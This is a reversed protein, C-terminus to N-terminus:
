AYTKKLYEVLKHKLLKSKRFTIVQDMIEPPVWVEKKGEREAEGRTVQPAELELSGTWVFLPNEADENEKLRTKYDRWLVHLENKTMPLEEIGKNEEDTLTIRAGVEEIPIKKKTPKTAQIIFQGGFGGYFHPVVEYDIGEEKLRKHLKKKDLVVIIGDKGFRGAYRGAGNIMLYAEIPEDLWYRGSREFRAEWKKQEKRSTLLRNGGELDWLYTEADKSQKKKVKNFVVHKERVSTGRLYVKEVLKNLEPARM